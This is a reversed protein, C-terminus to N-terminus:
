EQIVEKIRDMPIHRSNRQHQGITVTLWGDSIKYDYVDYVREFSPIEDTRYRILLRRM